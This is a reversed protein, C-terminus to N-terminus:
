SHFNVIEIFLVMIQKFYKSMLQQCNLMTETDNKNSKLEYLKEIDIKDAKMLLQKKIEYAGETQLIDFAPGHTGGPKQSEEKMAKQVESNVMIPM